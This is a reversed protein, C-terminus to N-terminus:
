QKLKMKIGDRLETYKKLVERNEDASDFVLYKSGNKECEIHRDVKGTIPHLSNVSYINEWDGNKKITIYGIYYIGIDKYSKKDIELLSSNFGEINIIDNHFYYNRNKIEIQKVKGM